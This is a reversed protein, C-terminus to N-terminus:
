QYMIKYISLHQYHKAFIRKILGVNHWESEYKKSVTNYIAARNIRKRAVKPKDKHVQYLESNDNNYEM